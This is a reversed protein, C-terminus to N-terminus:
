VYAKKEKDFKLNLEKAKATLLGGLEKKSTLSHEAETIAKLAANLTKADKAKEVMPAYKAMIAEYAEQQPKFVAMEEAINKRCEDFLRTLFDNPDGSALTPVERVGNIGYCAKAFYEDTPSFGIMRRKGMMFMHGGLDAPTWVIDKTSGECSLRTMITDGKQVETTHFIIIVNKGDRRMQATLREFERKIVGYMARGDKVAKTEQQKAWPQMMQVLSGATDIIVTKCNKYEESAMDNLLEDYSSEQATLRRHEAKVRAIGNDLDFLLPDPASLALSTNHTVIYDKIVYLSSKNDVMICTCEREGSAEISAIRRKSKLPKWGDAKRKLWFPCFTSRIRIRYETPKGQHERNYQRMTAYGGLSRVIEVVGNALDFSTTSFTTRGKRASGDTDMLGRLLELRQAPDGLLYETPIHKVKSLVNMGLRRIEQAIPNSNGDHKIYFCQTFHKRDNISYGNPLLSKVRELIANDTECNSFIPRDYSLCGDGLLVGIIYPHIMFQRTTYEIPKATPIEWRYVPKRGSSIRQLTTKAIGKGLLQETTFSHWLRNKKCFATRVTWIHEKDCVISTGDSFTVTYVPRKGQPFVGIVNHTKGDEGFVKDGVVIDAMPRWGSITCIPTDNSVAKGLGPQGSLVMTFTKNSFSMEEPKRIAM